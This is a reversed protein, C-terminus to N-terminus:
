PFRPAQIVILTRLQQCRQRQHPLWIMSLMTHEGGLCLLYQLVLVYQTRSELLVALNGLACYMMWVLM